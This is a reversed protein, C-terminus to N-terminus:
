DRPRRALVVAGQKRAIAAVRARARANGGLRITKFGMRLAALARGAESGCDLVAEYRAAPVARAAAEVIARFYLAGGAAAFGEPSLLMVAAGRAAAAALAAKAETLDRVVAVTPSRRPRAHTTSRQRALRAM